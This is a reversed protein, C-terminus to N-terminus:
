LWDGTVSMSAVFFTWFSFWTQICCFSLAFWRFGKFLYLVFGSFLLHLIFIIIILLQPWFPAPVPSEGDHEMVTGIFIILFPIIFGFCVLLYKKQYNKPCFPNNLLLAILFFTLLGLSIQWCYLLGQVSQEFLWCFDKIIDM